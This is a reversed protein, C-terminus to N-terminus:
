ENDKEKRFNGVSENMFYINDNAENRNIKDFYFIGKSTIKIGEENNMIEKINKINEEKKKLWNEYGKM